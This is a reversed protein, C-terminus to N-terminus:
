KKSSSGYYVLRGVYWDDFKKFTEETFPLPWPDQETIFGVKMAQYKIGSIQRPNKVEEINPESRYKSPTSVFDILFQQQTNDAQNRSILLTPHEPYNACLLQVNWGLKQFIYGTVVTPLKCDIGFVISKLLQQDTQFTEETKRLISKLKNHRRSIQKKGSLLEALLQSYNDIDGGDESRLLKINLKILRLNEDDNIKQAAVPIRSKMLEAASQRRNIFANFLEQHTEWFVLEDALTANGIYGIPLHNGVQNAVTNVLQEQNPIENGTKDLNLSKEVWQAVKGIGTYVDKIPKIEGTNIKVPLLQGDAEAM